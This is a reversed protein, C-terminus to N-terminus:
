DETGTAGANLSISGGQSTPVKLTGDPIVQGPVKSRGPQHAGQPHRRTGPTAEGPVRPLGGVGLRLGARSVEAAAERRECLRLMLRM